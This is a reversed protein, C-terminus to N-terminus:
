ITLDNEEKLETARNIFDAIAASVIAICAGLFAVGLSAIVVSPHNMGLFLYLINGAVFFLSDFVALYCIMTVRLVNDKIFVRDQKVTTSFKWMLVLVAACPIGTLWLFGLWPRYCHSYEPFRSVIFQGAQPFFIFYIFLGCIGMGTIMLKLLMALTNKNMIAEQKYGLRLM